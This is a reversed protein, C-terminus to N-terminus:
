KPDTASKYKRNAWTLVGTKADFSASIRPDGTKVAGTGADYQYKGVVVKDYHRWSFSGEKFHVAWHIRNVTGDRREGGPLRELSLFRKGDLPDAPADQAGGPGAAALLSLGIVIAVRRM